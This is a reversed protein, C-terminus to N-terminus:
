TRCWLNASMGSANVVRRGTKQIRGEKALESFRPRVALMSEGLAEAVQDTSIGDAGALAVQEFCRERLKAATGSIKRAAERSTTTEKYGPTFPYAAPTDGLLDKMSGMM